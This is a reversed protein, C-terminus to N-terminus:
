GVALPKVGNMAVLHYKDLTWDHSAILEKYYGTRYITNRLLQNSHKALWNHRAETYQKIWIKEDGGRKPTTAAFRDRLFQLISGSHLYSDCVIMNSLPLVMGEGEAWSIGPGLYLKAFMEEQVRQMIPDDGAAKLLGILTQNYATSSEKMRDVFPKIDKAFLGGRAVYEYLVRGLNGYQTFGISLTIQRVQAPGDRYIYVDKYRMKTTGQEAVILVNRIKQIERENLM